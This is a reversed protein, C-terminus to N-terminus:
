CHSDPFQSGTQPPNVTPLLFSLPRGGGLNMQNLKNHLTMSLEEFAADMQHLEEVTLDEISAEWWGQTNKGKTMEKLMKGREKEAALQHLLHNHYQNLEAIRAQRHAEVLPHTHDNAPQNLGLFRNSVAEISPHGFSYPNGSPSFVLVGVQAGTLTALESAKKYIGYKRKSFTVM